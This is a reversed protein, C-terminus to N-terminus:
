PWQIDHDKLKKYLSSRSIQLKTWAQELDAVSKLAESIFYKEVRQMCLELGLESDFYFPSNATPTQNSQIALLPQIDEPRIVPLPSILAVQEVIRKLERVNGPFPYDSLVKLTEPLFTKNTRPKLQDIFYNALESVEAGRERLPPLEIIHQRLRFYLDERFEGKEVMKQLPINSAAIIRASSYYTDKAGVRRAEGSELFRLLKVQQSLPLAQIEDLFLIGGHSAEVLGVKNQDAGTFAGKQHGFLESEFLNEPLAAINVSVFNPKDYLAQILQAVVEKGTGTEGQVLITGSESVVDAIQKLLIQSTTGSGIWPTQNGSLQRKKLLLFNEIKELLGVLEPRSLPKALFRSAGSLLGQEMLEVSLNGSMAVCETHPHIKKIERIVELGEANQINGTLHMDVMALDFPQDLLSPSFNSYEVMKWNKPLALRISAPVLDDDDIVLLRYTNM